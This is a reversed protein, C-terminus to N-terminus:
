AEHKHQLEQILQLAQGRMQPDLRILALLMAAMDDEECYLYALPIKLLAAM